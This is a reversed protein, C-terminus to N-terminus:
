DQPIFNIVFEERNPRDRSKDLMQVILDLHQALEVFSSKQLYYHVGLIFLANAVEDRLSTSYVVIPISKLRPDQKIEAVCEAGNKRPMNLDTFIVDPLTTCSLLYAMLDAGDVVTVLQINPHKQKLAKEFFYRDDTDDDALLINRIKNNVKM